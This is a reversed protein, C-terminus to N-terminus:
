LDLKQIILRGSDQLVYKGLGKVDCARQECAMESLMGHDRLILRIREKSSVGHIFANKFASAVEPYDTAYVTDSMIIVYAGDVPVVLVDDEGKYLLSGASVSYDAGVLPIADNDTYYIDGNETCLYQKNNEQWVCQIKTNSFVTTSKTVASMIQTPVTLVRQYLRSATKLCYRIFASSIDTYQEINHRFACASGTVTFVYVDETTAPTRVACKGPHEKFFYLKDKEIFDCGRLLVSSTASSASFTTIGEPLGSITYTFLSSAKGAMISTDADTSGAVVAVPQVASVPVSVVSFSQRVAFRKTTNNLADAGYLASAFVRLASALGSRLGNPRIYIDLLSSWNKHVSEFM